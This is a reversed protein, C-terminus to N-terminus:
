KILFINMWERLLLKFITKIQNIKIKTDKKNIKEKTKIQFPILYKVSEVVNNITNQSKIYCSLILYSLRSRYYM